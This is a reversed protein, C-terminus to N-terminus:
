SLIMAQWPQLRIQNQAKEVTQYNNVLIQLGHDVMEWGQEEDSLNLVIWYAKETNWRRYVYLADNGTDISAYQGYILGTNARRFRLVKQYFTLISDPDNQQAAVNIHSFNPNLKLWPTGSTFGAEAEANWQIPTRANDRGGIQIERLIKQQVAESQGEAQEAFYNKAEVDDYDNISPFTVNSMGIEDGQYICLTGRQTALMTLLLKAAAERYVGDNGFRSLIRPFDHNGLCVAAWGSEGLAEYWKEFARRIDQPGFPVQHYRGHQGLGLFLHEFHYLMNLEKRNKGVYDNAMEAPIGVGEALTFMDYHQCVEDHMERLFEHMRPGNAYVEVIASMFDDPDIPPYEPRKSILPIVDLRFGDIGKDLWFTMIDYIEQRVKPNEWNLDPQKKTFLHLYYEETQQDWEWTSGSFFSLWNTPPQDGVGKKWIYYDRYPNDKSKKAEQFWHHEDSTHNPVLDMVLKMDRAHIGELMAHFDKMTGFDPHIARFDSVDYGNDDNPSQYFPSIWIIDIGLNKLFDLKQTIGPLDGIGDGNSDHFSRPYIQYIVGEKWWHRTQQEM